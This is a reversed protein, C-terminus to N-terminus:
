WRHEEQWQRTRREKQKNRRSPKQGKLLSPAAGQRLCWLRRLQAPWPPICHIPTVNETEGSKRPQSKDQQWAVRDGLRRRVDLTYFRRALGKLTSVLHGVAAHGDHLGALLKRLSLEKASASVLEKRGRRRQKIPIAGRQVQHANGQVTFGRESRAVARALVCIPCSSNAIVITVSGVAARKRM